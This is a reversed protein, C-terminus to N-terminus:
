GMSVSSVPSAPCPGPSQPQSNLKGRGLEVGTGAPVQPGPHGWMGVRTLRDGLQLVCPWEVAAVLTSASVLGLTTAGVAFGAQPGSAWQDCPGETIGHRGALTQLGSAMEDQRCFVPRAM